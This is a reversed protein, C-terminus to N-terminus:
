QSTRSPARRPNIVGQRYAKVSNMIFSYFDYDTMGRLQDYSPRFNRLYVKVSDGSLGTINKVVQSNFVYDIYKEKEVESFDDQFAWIQQSYKSMASFPHNMKQATSMKAYELEHKYLEHLKASDEKWNKTRNKALYEPLEVPAQKLFIKFYPPITGAPVRLKEVKYGNKYFLILQGQEITMTFNGLSDATVMTNTFINQITAGAIPQRSDYDMISGQVRQAHAHSCYLFFLLGLWGAIYKYM